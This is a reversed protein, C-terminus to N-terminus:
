LTWRILWWCWQPAHVNAALLGIEVSAVVSEYDRLCDAFLEPVAQLEM